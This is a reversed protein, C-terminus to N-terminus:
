KNICDIYLMNGNELEFSFEYSRGMGITGFPNVHHRTKTSLLKHSNEDYIAYTPTAIWTKFLIIIVTGYDKGDANFAMSRGIFLSKNHIVNVIEENTM